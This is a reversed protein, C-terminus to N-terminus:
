ENPTREGEWYGNYAEKMFAFFEEKHEKYRKKGREKNDFFSDKPNREIAEQIYVECLGAGICNSSLSLNKNLGDKLYKLFDELSIDLMYEIMNRYKQFFAYVDNWRLIDPEEFSNVQMVEPMKHVLHHTIGGEKILKVARQIRKPNFDRGSRSKLYGNLEDLDMPERYARDLARLAQVQDFIVLDQSLNVWVYDLLADDSTLFEYEESTLYDFKGVLNPLIYTVADGPLKMPYGREVGYKIHHASATAIINKFNKLGLLGRLVKATLLSHNEVQQIEYPLLKSAKDLLLKPDLGLKGVDHLLGAYKAEEPDISANQDEELMKEASHKMMSAVAHSHTRTPPHVEFLNDFLETAADLVFMKMKQKIDEPADENDELTNRAEFLVLVNHISKAIEQLIMASYKTLEIDTELVLKRREGKDLSFVYLLKGGKKHYFYSQSLKNNQSKNIAEVFMERKEESVNNKLGYFPESKDVIHMRSVEPVIRCIGEEFSTNILRKYDEGMRFSFSKVAEFVIQTWRQIQYHRVIEDMEDLNESFDPLIDKKNKESVGSITYNYDLMERYASAIDKLLDVDQYGMTKLIGYSECLYTRADYFAQLLNKGDEETESSGEKLRDGYVRAKETAVKGLLYYMQAELPLYTGKQREIRSSPGDDGFIKEIDTLDVIGQKSGFANSDVFTIEAGQFMNMRLSEQIDEVSAQGQYQNLLCEAKLVKIWKDYVQGKPVDVDKKIREYIHEADDLIELTQDDDGDNKAIRAQYLKVLMKIRDLNYEDALQYIINLNKNSEEGRKREVYTGAFQVLALIELAYEFDEIFIEDNEGSCFENVKGWLNDQFETTYHVYGLVHDGVIFAQDASISDIYVPVWNRHVKAYVQNVGEPDSNIYNESLSNKVEIAFGELSRLTMAYGDAKEVHPTCQSYFDFAISAYRTLFYSLKWIWGRQYETMDDQHERWFSAIIEYIRTIKIEHTNNIQAKLDEIMEDLKPDYGVAVMDLMEMFVETMLHLERKVKDPERQLNIYCQIIMYHCAAERVPIAQSFVGKSRVFYIISQAHRFWKLAGEFDGQSRFKNAQIYAEIYHQAWNDSLEESTRYQNLEKYLPFVVDVEESPLRDQFDQNDAEDLYGLKEVM